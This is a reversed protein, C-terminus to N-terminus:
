RRIFSAAAVPGDPDRVTVLASSGGEALARVARAAAVAGTAGFLEVDDSPAARGGAERVAKSLPSSGGGDEYLLVGAGLAPPGAAWEHLRAAARREDPEFFSTGGSLYVGPGGSDLGLFLMAAAGRAPRRGGSLEWARLMDQNLGEAGGALLRTAAGGLLRARALLLAELGACRGAVLVESLGGLGWEIALEGNVSNHVTAVFVAPRLEAVSSTTALLRAHETISDRCGFASGMVVGATAEPSQPRVYGAACLASAAACFGAKGFRDMRRLRGRDLGFPEPEGELWVGAGLVRVCGGGTM